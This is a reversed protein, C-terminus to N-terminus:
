HEGGSTADHRDPVESGSGSQYTCGYQHGPDQTCKLRGLQPCTKGVGKCVRCRGIAQGNTSLEFGSGTCEPCPSTMDTNM